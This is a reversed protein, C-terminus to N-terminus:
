KELSTTQLRLRVERTLRKFGRDDILDDLHKKFRHREIAVSNYSQKFNIRDAGQQSFRSSIESDSLGLRKLAITRKWIDINEAKFTALGPLKALQKNLIVKSQTQELYKKIDSAKMAEKIVINLKGANEEILISPYGQRDPKVATHFLILYIATEIWCPPLNFFEIFFQAGDLLLDFKTREWSMVVKINYNNFLLGDASLELRKRQALLFPIFLDYEEILKILNLDKQTFEEEKHIKIHM